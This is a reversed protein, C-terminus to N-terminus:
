ATVIKLASKRDTCKTSRQCRRGNADTYCGIFFKTGPLRRLSAM